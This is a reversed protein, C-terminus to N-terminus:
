DIREHSNLTAHALHMSCPKAEQLPARRLVQCDALTLNTYWGQRLREPFGGKRWRESEKQGAHSIARCHRFSDHSLRTKARVVNSAGHFLPTIEHGM